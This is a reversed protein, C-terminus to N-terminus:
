RTCSPEFPALFLIGFLYPVERTYHKDDHSARSVLGPLQLKELLLFGLSNM